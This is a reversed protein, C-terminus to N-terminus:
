LLYIQLSSCVPVSTGFGLSSAILLTSISLYSKLYEKKNGEKKSFFTLLKLCYLRQLLVMSIMKFLKQSQLPDFGRKFINFRQLHIRFNTLM